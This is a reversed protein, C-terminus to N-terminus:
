GPSRASTRTGRTPIPFRRETPRSTPRGFSRRNGFLPVPAISADPPVRNEVADQGAGDPPVPLWVGVEAAEDPPTFVIGFGVGIRVAHTRVATCPAALDLTGDGLLTALTLLIVTIV